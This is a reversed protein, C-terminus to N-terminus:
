EANFHFTGWILPLQHQIICPLAWPEGAGGLPRDPGKLGSLHQLLLARAWGRCSRGAACPQNHKQKRLSTESGRTHQLNAWQIELVCKAVSVSGAAYVTGHFDPMKRRGGVRGQTMESSDLSTVSLPALPKGKCPPVCPM